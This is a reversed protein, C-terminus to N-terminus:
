QGLMLSDYIRKVQMDGFGYIGAKASFESFVLPFDEMGEEIIEKIVQEPRGLENDSPFRDIHAQCVEDLYQFCESEQLSLAKLKQFDANQFALWLNKGLERDQPSFEKRLTYAQGLQDSSTNGFGKWKDKPNDNKPFVRFVRMEPYASLLSLIFWMNVQCFLDNEFWLCLASAEPLKTLKELERVSKKYYEETPINYSDKLFKARTSWFAEINEASTDGEVLCERCVIVDQNIKTKKLQEALCDGNLVHYTKM